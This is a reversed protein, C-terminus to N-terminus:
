IVPGTYFLLLFLKFFVIVAYVYVYVYLVFVLYLLLCMGVTVSGKESHCYGCSSAGEGYFELESRGPVM